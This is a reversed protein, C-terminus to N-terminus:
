DVIWNGIFRARATGGASGHACKIILMDGAGPTTFTVTALDTGIQSILSSVPTGGGSDGDVHDIVFHHIESGVDNTSDDAYTVLVLGSLAGTEGADAGNIESLSLTLITENSTTFAGSAAKDYSASETGDNMTIKNSTVDPTGNITVVDGAADGLTTDGNATLDGSFVGDGVVDLEVGSTVSTKGIALGGGSFYTDGATHIQTRITGGTDRLFYLGDQFRHRYSGATTRFLIDASDILVLGSGNPDIAVDGNTSTSSITNGDLRLNDANVQGGTVAGTAALSAASVAGDFSGAGAGTITAGTGAFGTGTHLNGTATIDNTATIDDVWLEAWRLATTGLDYLSDTIPILDTDARGTFSITDATDDGFDMDGTSVLGGANVDGTVTVADAWVEAWRLATSGLDRLSDALPLLDTIARGVFSITDTPANGFTANGDVNLLELNTDELVDFDTDVLLDGAITTDGIIEVTGGGSVRMDINKGVYPRIIMDETNTTTSMVTNSFDFQGLEANVTTGDDALFVIQKLSISTQEQDQFVLEMTNTTMWIRVSSDYAPFQGADDTHFRIGTEESVDLAHGITATALLCIIATIKRLM